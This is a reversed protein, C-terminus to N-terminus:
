PIGCDVPEMLTWQPTYTWRGRHIINKLQEKNSTASLLLQISKNSQNCPQKKFSQSFAAFTEVAENKIDKGRQGQRGGETQTQLQSTYESGPNPPKTPTSSSPSYGQGSDQPKGWGKTPERLGRWITAPNWHLSRHALKSISGDLVQREM